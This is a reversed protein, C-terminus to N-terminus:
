KSKSKKRGNTHGDLKRGDLKHGDLLVNGNCFREMLLNYPTVKFVMAINALNDVGINETGRELRGIYDQHLGTKEGLTEQSWEAKYRLCRINDGIIQRIGVKVKIM